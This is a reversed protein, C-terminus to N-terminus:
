LAGLAAPSAVTRTEKAAVVDTLSFPVPHAQNRRWFEADDRFHKSKTDWV